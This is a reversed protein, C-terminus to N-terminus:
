ARVFQKKAGGQGQFSFHFSGWVLPKGLVLTYPYVMTYGLIALKIPFIIMIMKKNKQTNNNKRLTDSDYDYADSAKQDLRFARLTKSICGGHLSKLDTRAL